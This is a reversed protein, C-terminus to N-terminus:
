YFSYKRCKDPESTQKKAQQMNQINRNINMFSDILEKKMIEPGSSASPLNISFHTKSNNKKHM